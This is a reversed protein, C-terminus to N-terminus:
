QMSWGFIATALSTLLYRTYRATLTTPFMEASTEEQRPRDIRSHACAGEGVVGDDSGRSAFPIISVM